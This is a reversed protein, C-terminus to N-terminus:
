LREGDKDFTPIAYTLYEAAKTARDFPPINKGRQKLPYKVVTFRFDTNVVQLTWHHRNEELVDCELVVHNFQKPILNNIDTRDKHFAYFVKKM